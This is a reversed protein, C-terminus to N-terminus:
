AERWLIDNSSVRCMSIVNILKIQAFIWRLITTSWARVHRYQLSKYKWFIRDYIFQVYITIKNQDPLVAWVMCLILLRIALLISVCYRDTKHLFLKVNSWHKAGLGVTEILWKYASHTTALLVCLLLLAFYTHAIQEDLTTIYM